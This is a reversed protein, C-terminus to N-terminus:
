MKISEALGSKLSCSPTLRTEGRRVTCARRSSFPSAKFLISTLQKARVSVQSLRNGEAPLRMRASFISSEADARLSDSNIGCITAKYSSGKSVTAIEASVAELLDASSALSSLPKATRKRFRHSKLSRALQM